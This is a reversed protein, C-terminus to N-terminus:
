LGCWAVDRIDPWACRAATGPLGGATPDRTTEVPPLAADIVGLEALYSAAHRAPWRRCGANGALEVTLLFSSWGAASLDGASIGGMTLWRDLQRMQRLQM